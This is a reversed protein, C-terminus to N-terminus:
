TEQVSEYYTSESYKRKKVSINYLFYNKYSTMWRNPFHQLDSDRSRIINPNLPSVNSFKLFRFNKVNEEDKIEHM